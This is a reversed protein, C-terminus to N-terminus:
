VACGSAEILQVMPLATKKRLRKCTAVEFSQIFVPAARGEYGHRTLSKLLPGIWECSWSM